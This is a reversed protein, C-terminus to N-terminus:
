LFLLIIITEGEHAVKLPHKFGRVSSCVKNWDQVVNSLCFFRVDPLEPEEEDSDTAADDDDDDKVNQQTTPPSPGKEDVTGEDDGEGADLLKEEEPDLEEEMPTDEVQEDSYEDDSSM